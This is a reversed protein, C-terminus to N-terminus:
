GDETAPFSQATRIRSFIDCALTEARDLTTGGPMHLWLLQNIAEKLDGNSTVSTPGDSNKDPNM